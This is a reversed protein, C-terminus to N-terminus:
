LDKVIYALGEGKQSIREPAKRESLFDHVARSCGDWTYYDDILILGNPVMHDWFKRLCLMTSDYWDADLRLVAVSPPDFSPFTKDFFGKVPYIRADLSAMTARFEELSATCNNHYSPSTKDAQYALAAPGDIDKAPPLGEFSDFFYYDRDPGGIEVLAASMGGRWCGCEIVAADPPYGQIYNCVLEINARFVAPPIMTAHKYKAYLAAPRAMIQRLPQLMPRLM